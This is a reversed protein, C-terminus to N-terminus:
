NKWIIIYQPGVTVAEV